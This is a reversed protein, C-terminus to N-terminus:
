LIINAAEQILWSLIGLSIGYSVKSHELTHNQFLMNGLGGKLNLYIMNEM